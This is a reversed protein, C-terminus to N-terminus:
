TKKKLLWIKSPPLNFSIFNKRTWRKLLM